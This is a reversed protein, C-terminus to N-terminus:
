IMYYVFRYIYRVSTINPNVYIGIINGFSATNDVIFAESVADGNNGSEPTPRAVQWGAM